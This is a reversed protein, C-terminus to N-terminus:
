RKGRAPSPSPPPAKQIGFETGMLRRGALADKLSRIVRRKDKLSHSERLVFRLKLTGVIM